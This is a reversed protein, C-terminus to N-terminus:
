PKAISTITLAQNMVKQSKRLIPTTASTTRKRKAGSKESIQYKANPQTDSTSPMSIYESTPMRQLSHRIRGPTISNKQQTTKKVPLRSL